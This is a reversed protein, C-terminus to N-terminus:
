DMNEKERLFVFHVHISTITTIDKLILNGGGREQVGKKNM